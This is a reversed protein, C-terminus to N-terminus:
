YNITIGMNYLEFLLENQDHGQDVLGEINEYYVYGKDLGFKILDEKVNIESISAEDELENIELEKMGEQWIKEAEEIMVPDIEEYNEFMDISLYRIVKDNIHEFYFIEGEKPVYSWRKFGILLSSSYSHFHIKKNKDIVVIRRGYEIKVKSSIRLSDSNISGQSVRYQTYCRENKEFIDLLVKNIYFITRNKIKRIDMGYKSLKEPMDLWELLIYQRTYAIDIEENIRLYHEITGESVRDTRRRKVEAVIEEFYMPRDKEELVMYVLDSIFIHKPIDWEKLGYTGPRIRKLKNNRQMTALINRGQITLKINHKRAVGLVEGSHLPRGELTVVLYILEENSLRGLKCYYLNNGVKKIGIDQVLIKEYLDEKSKIDLRNFLEEKKILKEQRVLGIVVKEIRKYEDNLILVNNNRIYNKGKFIKEFILDFIEVTEQDVMIDALNLIKEIELKNIVWGIYPRIYKRHGSYNIKNEIQKGIQRVRERTLGVMEGIEELTKEGLIRNEYVKIQNENKLNKRLEKDTEEWLKILNFRGVLNENETKRWGGPYIEMYSMEGLHNELSTKDLKLGAVEFDYLMEETNIIKDRIKKNNIYNSILDLTPVYKLSLLVNYASSIQQSVNISDRALWYSNGLYMFNKYKNLIIVLKQFSWNGLGAIFNTYIESLHAPYPKEKLYNILLIVQAKEDEKYKEEWLRIHKYFSEFFGEPVNIEQKSYIKQDEKTTFKDINYVKIQNIIKEKEINYIFYQTKLTNEILSIDKNIVKVFEKKDIIQNPNVFLADEIKLYFERISTEIEDIRLNAFLCKNRSLNKISIVRKTGEIKGWTKELHEELM